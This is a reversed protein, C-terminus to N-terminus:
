KAVEAANGSAVAHGGSQDSLFTVGAPFTCGKITAQGKFTDAVWIMTRADSKFTCGDLGLRFDGAQNRLQIVTDPGNEFRVKSFM